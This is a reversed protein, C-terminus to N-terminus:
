AHVRGLLDRVAGEVQEDTMGEFRHTSDTPQTPKGYGQDMLYKVYDQRTSESLKEWRELEKSLLERSKTKCFERFEPTKEIRRGEPNGSVGKRWAPNGRKAKPKSAIDGM